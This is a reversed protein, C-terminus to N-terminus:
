PLCTNGFQAAFPIWKVATPDHRDEVGGVEEAVLGAFGALGFVQGPFVDLFDPTFVVFQHALSLRCITSDVSWRGNDVALLAWLHGLAVGIFGGLAAFWAINPAGALIAPQGHDALPGVEGASYEIVAAAKPGVEIGKGIEAAVTEAKFDFEVSGNLSQGVGFADGLGYAFGDGKGGVAEVEKEAVFDNLMDLVVSMCYPFHDPDDLWAATNDDEAGVAPIRNLLVADVPV